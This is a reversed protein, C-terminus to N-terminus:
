KLIKEAAQRDTIQDKAGAFGDFIRQHGVHSRPDSRNWYNEAWILLGEFSEEAKISDLQKASESGREMLGERCVTWPLDLWILYDARDLFQEALEGFVGEVIWEDEKKKATIEAKVIEAPRKEDFGGPVWFLEDLHLVPIGRSASIRRALFSKGSGSNGIIVIRKM